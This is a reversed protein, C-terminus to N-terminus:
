SAPWTITVDGTSADLFVLALTFSAGDNTTITTHFYQDGDLRYAAPINLAVVPSTASEMNLHGKFELRPLGRRFAFEELPASPQEVSNQLEIFEGDPNSGGENIVTLWPGSIEDYHGDRHHRGHDAPFQHDAM